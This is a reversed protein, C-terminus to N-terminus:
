KDKNNNNVKKFFMESLWRGFISKVQQYMLRNDLIKTGINNKEFYDIICTNSLM